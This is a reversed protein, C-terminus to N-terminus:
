KTLRSVAKSIGFHRKVTDIHAKNMAKGDLGKKQLIKETDDASLRLDNAKSHVDNRKSQLDGEHRFRVAMNDSAKKVYSGLTGKSLEDLREFDEKTLRSVARMIGNSRKIAKDFSKGSKEYESTSLRGADFAHRVVGKTGTASKRVYSKLTDKSLEDLQEFEEKTLRSGASKVGTTRTKEKQDRREFWNYDKHKSNLESNAKKIYSGLTEKSLEDLQEFEETQLYGELIDADIELFDEDIRKVKSPHHRTSYETGDRDKKDHKINVFGHAAISSVKGTINGFEPHEAKVRDGVKFEEEIFLSEAIEQKREEIRQTVKDALVSELIKKSTV